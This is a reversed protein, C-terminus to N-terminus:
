DDIRESGKSPDPVWYYAGSGNRMITGNLRRAALAAKLGALGTEAQIVYGRVLEEAHEQEVEDSALRALNAVSAEFSQVTPTEDGPDMRIKWSAAETAVYQLTRYPSEGTALPDHKMGSLIFIVLIVKM